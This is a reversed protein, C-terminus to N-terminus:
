AAPMAPGPRRTWLLVGLGALLAAGGLSFLWLQQIGATGGGGTAPAGQPMKAVPVGLESAAQEALSLHMNLMPLAASAYDKAKWNSGLAAEQKFLVITQEHAIVSAQAFAVNLNHGSQSEIQAAEALQQSGPSAPIPVGLGAALQRLEALATSHDSVYRGAVSDLPEAVRLEVNKSISIEAINAQAAAAMFARDQDSVTLTAPRATAGQAPSAVAAATILGASMAFCAVALALRPGATRQRKM